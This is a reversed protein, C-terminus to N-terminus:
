CGPAGFALDLGFTGVLVFVLRSYRKTPNHKSINDTNPFPIPKAQLRHTSNIGDTKYQINSNDGALNQYRM